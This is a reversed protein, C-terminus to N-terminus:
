KSYYQADGAGANIAAAAVVVVYVFGFGCASYRSYSAVTFGDAVTAVHATTAIRTAITNATLACLWYAIM